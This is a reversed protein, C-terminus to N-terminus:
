DEPVRVLVHRLMRGQKRCSSATWRAAEPGRGDGLDRHWPTRSTLVVSINSTRVRSGHYPSGWTRANYQGRKTLVVSAETLQWVQPECRAEM